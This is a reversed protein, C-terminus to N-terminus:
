GAKYLIKGDQDTVQGIREASKWSNLFVYREFPLEGYKATMDRRESGHVTTLISCGCHMAYSVAEMDSQGGLEDFAILRPAMSRVLMEIGLKKPCNDLIDTRIGVDNQPVGMYCASVESREDVLGVSIGPYGHIGDSFLRILDRLLTTKGCGPPSLILTHCPRDELWLKSFIQNGCGKVSHAVRINLSSIHAISNIRGNEMSVQGAIGARHGGQITIFGQRLEDEFAYLSYRCIYAMSEQLDEAAAIVAHNIDIDLKGAANIFYEKGDMIVIIPRGIRMRVEQVHKWQDDLGKFYPRLRLSFINIM